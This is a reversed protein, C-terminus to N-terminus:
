TGCAHVARPYVAAGRDQGTVSWHDGQVVPDAGFYGSALAGFAAPPHESVKRDEADTGWWQRMWADLCRLACGPSRHLTISSDTHDAWTKLVFVRGDKCM